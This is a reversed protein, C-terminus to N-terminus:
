KSNKFHFFNFINKIKSLIINLSNKKASFYLFIGIIVKKLRNNFLQPHMQKTEEM